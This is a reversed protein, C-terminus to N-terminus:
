SKVNQLKNNGPRTWRFCAALTPENFHVLMYGWMGRGSHRMGKQNQYFCSYM